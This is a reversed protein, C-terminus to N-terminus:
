KGRGRLKDLWSKKTAPDNQQQQKVLVLEDRLGTIENRLAAIEQLLMENQEKNIDSMAKTVMGVFEKVNLTTEVPVVERIEKGVGLADFPIIWREGKLNPQKVKTAPLDGHKIRRRVTDISVNLLEAAKPISV